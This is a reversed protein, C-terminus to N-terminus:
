SFFAILINKSEISNESGLIFNEPFYIIEVNKPDFVNFFFPSGGIPRNKFDIDIRHLGTSTPLCEVNYTDNIKVVKCEVSEGIPGVLLSGKIAEITKNINLDIIVYKHDDIIEGLEKLLINNSLQSTVNILKFSVKTRGNEFSLSRNKIRFSSLRLFKCLAGFIHQSQQYEANLLFSVSQGSGQETNIIKINVGDDLSSLKLSFKSLEGLKVGNM